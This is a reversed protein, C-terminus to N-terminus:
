QVQQIQILKWRTYFKGYTVLLRYDHEAGSAGKVHTQIEYDTLIDSRNTSGTVKFSVFEEPSEFKWSDPWEGIKQGILGQMIQSDSLHQNPASSKAADAYTVLPPFERDFRQALKARLDLEKSKITILSSKLATTRQELVQAAPKMSQLETATQSVQDEGARLLIGDEEDNLHKGLNNLLGLFQNPGSTIENQKEILKSYDGLIDAIEGRAQAFQVAYAALDPDVYLVPLSTIAACRAQEGDAIDQFVAAMDKDDVGTEIHPNKLLEAGNGSVAAKNFAEWFKWTEEAKGPPPIPLRHAVRDFLPVFVFFVLFGIFCLSITAFLKKFKGGNSKQKPLLPPVPQEPTASM